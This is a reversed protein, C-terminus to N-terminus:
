DLLYFLETMYLKLSSTFPLYTLYLKIIKLFNNDEYNWDESTSQMFFFFANLMERHNKDKTSNGLQHLCINYTYM